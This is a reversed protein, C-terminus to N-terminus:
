VVGEPEPTLSKKALLVGPILPLWLTLGRLLLTSAIAGGLPVEFLLLIAISGAEFGGIGGPLFTVAGAASAIIFAAFTSAVSGQLGISKMIYLLTLGDLVLVTGRFFITYLMVKVSFIRENSMFVLADLMNAVGERRRIWNPIKLKKHHAIGLVVIFLAIQLLLCVLILFLIAQSLNHTTWLIMFSIGMSLIFSIRYAINDIIFAEVALHSPLGLRRLTQVIVLDGALNGSPIFQNVSLQEVALRVLSSFPLPHKFLRAIVELAAGTFVYTLIQLLVAIGIYLPDAKKILVWFDRMQAWNSFFFVIIGILLIIGFSIGFYFKKSHKKEEM